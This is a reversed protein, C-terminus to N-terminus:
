KFTLEYILPSHYIDDATASRDLPDGSSIRLKVLHARVQFFPLSGMSEVPDAGDIEAIYTARLIRLPNNSAEAELARATAEDTDLFVGQPSPLTVRLIYNALRKELVHHNQSCTREWCIRLRPDRLDYPQLTVDSPVAIFKATQNEPAAQKFKEMILRAEDRREFVNKESYAEIAASRFAGTRAASLAEVLRPNAEPPPAGPLSHYLNILEEGGQFLLTDPPMTETSQARCVSVAIAALFALLLMRM